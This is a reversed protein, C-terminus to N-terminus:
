HKVELKWLVNKIEKIHKKYSMLFTVIIAWSDNCLKLLVGTIPPPRHIVDRENRYISKYIAFTADHQSQNIPVTYMM